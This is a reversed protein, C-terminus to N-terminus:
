VEEWGKGGGGGEALGRERGRRESEGDVAVVGIESEEGRRRRAERRLAGHHIQRGRRTLDAPKALRRTRWWRPREQPKVLGGSEESDIAKEGSM